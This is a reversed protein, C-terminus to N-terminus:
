PCEATAYVIFSPAEYCTLRDRNDTMKSAGGFGISPDVVFFAVGEARLTELAGGFSKQSVKNLLDGRRSPESTGDKAFEPTSLYWRRSSTGIVRPNLDLSAFTADRPTNRRIWRSLAVERPSPALGTLIQRERQPIVRDRTEGYNQINMMILLTALIACLLDRITGVRGRSDHRSCLAELILAGLLSAATIVFPLFRQNSAGLTLDITPSEGVTLWWVLAVLTGSAAMVPLRTGWRRRFILISGLVPAFSFYFFSTGSPQQTTAALFLATFAFVSVFAFLSKVAVDRRKHVIVLSTIGVLAPALLGGAVVMGLLDRTIQPTPWNLDGWTNMYDFRPRLEFNLRGQSPLQLYFFWMSFLIGIFLMLSRLLKDFTRPTSAISVLVAAGLGAVVPLAVHIKSGVLGLTLIVVLYTSNHSSVLRHRLMLLLLGLAFTHALSTGLSVMDVSTLPRSTIWPTTTAAILLVLLPDFSTTAFARTIARFLVVQVFAILSPLLLTLLGFNEDGVQVSLWGSWAYPLWHYSFPRGSIFPNEWHGFLAIGRGYVGYFYIDEDFFWWTPHMLTTTAIICWGAGVAAAVAFVWRTLLSSMRLTIALALLTVAYPLPWGWYHSLLLLVSSVYILGSSAVRSTAASQWWAEIKARRLECGWVSALETRAILAAVGVLLPLYVVAVGLAVTAQQVAVSLVVGVLFALGVRDGIDSSPLARRVLAYGVICQCAVLLSALVFDAFM